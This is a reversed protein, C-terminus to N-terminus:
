PTADHVIFNGHDHVFAFPIPPPCTTPPVALFVDLHTDLDGPEGMDTIHFLM